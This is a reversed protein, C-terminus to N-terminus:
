LSGSTAVLHNGAPSVLATSFRGYFSLNTFSGIFAMLAEAVLGAVLGLALALGVLLLVRRDVVAPQPPADAAELVENLSPSVTLGDPGAAHASLHDSMSEHIEEQGRGPPHFTGSGAPRYEGTAHFLRDFRSIRRWGRCSALCYYVVFTHGRM